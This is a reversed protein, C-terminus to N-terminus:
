QVQSDIIKKIEDFAQIANDFKVASGINNYLKCNESNDDVLLDEESGHKWKDIGKNCIIVDNKNIEPCNKELWYRKGRKGCFLYVASLIGIKLDKGKVYDLLMNYLKHGEMNWPMDSWYSSGIRELKKWDSKGTDPKRANNYDLWYDYNTLVGDMDLLIRKIM